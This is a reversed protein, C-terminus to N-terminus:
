TIVLSSRSVWFVKPYWLTRAYIWLTIFFQNDILYLCPLILQWTKMSYTHSFSCKLERNLKLKTGIAVAFCQRKIKNRTLKEYKWYVFKEGEFKNTRQKNIKSYGPTKDQCKM